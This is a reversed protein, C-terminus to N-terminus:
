RFGSNALLNEKKALLNEKKAPLIQKKAPLIQKKALLFTFKAAFQTLIVWNAAKHRSESPFRESNALL